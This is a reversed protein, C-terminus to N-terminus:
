HGNDQVCVCVWVWECVSVFACSSTMDPSQLQWKTQQCELQSAPNITFMHALLEPHKPCYCVSACGSADM